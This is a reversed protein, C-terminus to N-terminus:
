KINGFREREGDLGGEELFWAGVGHSPGHYLVFFISFAKQDKDAKRSGWGALGWPAPSPCGSGDQIGLLALCCRGGGRVM